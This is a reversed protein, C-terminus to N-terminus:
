RKELWQAIPKFVMEHSHDSIFLDAHAFRLEDTGVVVTDKVKSGIVEHASLATMPPVIGDANALICLLPNKVKKMAQTINKGDVILDKQAIWKAIEYNLHRNPDDITEFLIDQHRLDVMDKHIYIELLSTKSLIPFLFRALSRTKMMRIMGIVKPLAFVAKLLPHTEEWRLPAGMTVISGAHNKAVTALYAYVITGGLSCGILDVKGTESRSTKRIFEVVRHLDSVLKSFSLKEEPISVRSSSGGQCRLNASWVEFGKQTLYEEFSLGRPHYGFIFSNMGYGPLILIPNRKKHLTHPPRCQKVELDWGDGNDIRHITHQALSM